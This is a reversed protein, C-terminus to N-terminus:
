WISPRHPSQVRISDNKGLFPHAHGNLGTWVAVEFSQMYTSKLLQLNRICRVLPSLQLLPEVRKSNRFSVRASRSPAFHGLLVAHCTKCQPQIHLLIAASPCEYASQKLARHAFLLEVMTVINLIHLPVSRVVLMAM